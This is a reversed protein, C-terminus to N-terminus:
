RCEKPLYREPLDVTECRFSISGGSGSGRMAFAKGDIPRAGAMVITITGHDDLEMSQVDRPLAVKFGAESL